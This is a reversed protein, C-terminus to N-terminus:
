ANHFEPQAAQEGSAQVDEHTPGYTTELRSKLAVAQDALQRHLRIIERITQEVEGAQGLTTQDTPIMQALGDALQSAEELDKDNVATDAIQTLRETKEVAAPYNFDTMPSGGNAGAPAATPAQGNPATPAQPKRGNPPAQDQPPPAGVRRVGTREGARRQAARERKRREADIRRQHAAIAQRIQTLRAELDATGAARDLDGQARANKHDRWGAHFGNRTVPFGHRIETGWWGWTAQRAARRAHAQADTKGGRATAAKRSRTRAQGASRSVARGAVRCGNVVGVIFLIGALVSVPDM